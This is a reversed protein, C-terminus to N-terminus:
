RVGDEATGINERVIETLISIPARDRWFGADLFVRLQQKARSITTNVLAKGELRNSDSFFPENWQLNATDCVSFLVWDWERGQAQHTTWVEVHDLIESDHFERRLRKRILKVQNRYPTLVAITPLVPQRQAWEWWDKIRGLIADAESDNERKNRDRRGHQPECDIYRICTDGDALGILGIGEYVHHDLLSALSQGFRYSETLVCRRTLAWCPEKLDDLGRFDGAYRFADELFIAPKAWYSRIVADNDCECIPPLQCHDGLMGIPCRLSLLPLVKALPAYPAEDVLVRDVSLGTQLTLGIFGDLTMGIVSKNTLDQAFRAIRDKHQQIETRWVAICVDANQLPYQEGLRALEAESNTITETAMRISDQTKGLQEKLEGCKRDGDAIESSIAAIRRRKGDRSSYLDTLTAKLGSVQPAVTDRRERKGRLTAEVTQLHVEESSISVALREKRGTFSRAFVGLNQLEARLSDIRKITRTQEAELTTIDAEIEPLSLDKIAGQAKAIAKEVPQTQEQFLAADLRWQRLSEKTTALENQLTRLSENSAQLIQRNDEVQRQLDQARELRDIRDKLGRIQSETQRIEHQFARQECCEPYQEIFEQSPVGIRAVKGPDIGDSLIATLANDVALNTSALVLVKQNQSVCHCAVKALVWKTKGTGPPGWIYSLSSRLITMIAEAQKNTLQPHLNPPPVDGKAWGEIQGIEPMASGHAQFWDLCRRVLWRFDVVVDGNDGLVGERAVFTTNGTRRDYEMIRIEIEIGPLADSIMTASSDSRISLHSPLRCSHGFWRSNEFFLDEGGVQQIERAPHRDVGRGQSQLFAIHQETSEAVANVVANMSLFPM